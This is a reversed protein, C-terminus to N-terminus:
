KLFKAMQWLDHYTGDELKLARIKRGEERFGLQRYLHIAGKNESVVELTLKELKPHQNAWTILSRLLAKGIGLGRYDEEVSMGFAGQHATRQKSGSAFDLFGVMQGEVEAVLALSGDAEHMQELFRRQDSETLKFEDVTTVLYPADCLISRNFALVNKADGPKATRITVNRGDRIPFSKPNMIAM